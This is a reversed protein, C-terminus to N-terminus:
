AAGTFQLQMRMLLARARMGLPAGRWDIAALQSKAIERRGLHYNARAREYAIWQPQGLQALDDAYRRELADLITLTRRPNSINASGQWYYGLAQPLREFADTLRAVRVWADFDEGAILERDESFGGIEQMLSRAVVVSSNNIVNGTSMLSNFVPAKLARTTSRQHFLPTGSPTVIRLDHYVFQAGRELYRLSVELKDPTWWDDSDLFAVYKGRAERLGANRPRAPGGFNEAWHYKVDLRDEYRRVVQASDDTSGDDCVLVEFGRVTQKELADLCRALDSARNFTPVIVSVRVESM